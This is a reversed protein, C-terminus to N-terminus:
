TRMQAKLAATIQAVTRPPLAPVLAARVINIESRMVAVVARLISGDEILMANLAAQDGASLDIPVFAATVGPWALYEAWLAPRDASLSVAGRDDTIVVVSTREANAFQAALIM